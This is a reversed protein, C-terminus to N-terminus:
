KSSKVTEIGRKNLTVFCTDETLHIAIIEKEDVVTKVSSLISDLSLRGIYRTKFYVSLPQNLRDVM